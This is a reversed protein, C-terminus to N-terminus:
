RLRFKFHFIVIEYDQVATSIHSSPPTRAISFDTTRRFKYATLTRELDHYIENAFMLDVYLFGPWEMSQMTIFGEIANQKLNWKTRHAQDLLLPSVERSLPKLFDRLADAGMELQARSPLHTLPLRFLLYQDLKTAETWSLGNFSANARITGDPRCLYAGRPVVNCEEELCTALHALRDLEVVRFRSQQREEVTANRKNPPSNYSIQRCFLFRACQPRVISASVPNLSAFRM